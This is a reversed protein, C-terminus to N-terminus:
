KQSAKVNTNELFANAQSHYRANSLAHSGHEFFPRTNKAHTQRPALITMEIFIENLSFLQQTM